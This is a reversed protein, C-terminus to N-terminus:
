DKKRAFTKKNRLKQKKDLMIRNKNKSKIRLNPKPVSLYM